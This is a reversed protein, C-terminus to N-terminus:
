PDTGQSPSFPFVLQQSPQFATFTILKVLAFGCQLATKRQKKSLLTADLRKQLL